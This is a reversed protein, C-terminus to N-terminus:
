VPGWVGPFPPPLLCCCQWWGKGGKMKEVTVGEEFAPDFHPDWGAWLRGSAGCGASLLHVEGRRQNREKKHETGGAAIDKIKMM